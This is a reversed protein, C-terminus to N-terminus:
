IARTVRICRRIGGRAGKQEPYGVYIGVTLDLIVNGLYYLCM